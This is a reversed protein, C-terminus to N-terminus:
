VTAILRFFIPFHDSAVDGNPRGNKRALMTEGINTIIEVDGQFWPFMEPRLLVQDFINWEYSLPGSHRYYHTGPPGATRDGFCGWMPNYFFPYERAQVKRSGEAASERTMMAHLGAAQVIGDEFPNLNFDGILVTRQHRRRQEEQRIQDALVQVEATQDVANWNIKSPLHVAALLFETQQFQLLRITVRGSADGYIEHLALHQGRCFLQIRPTQSDPNIFSEDTIARLAELTEAESASHEVLVVIDADFEAALQAILERRDQRNVNWFVCSVAQTGPEHFNEPM